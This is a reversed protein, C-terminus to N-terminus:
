GEIMRTFEDEDIVRVDLQEAKARKAPGMDAGALLYSTKSSISGSVKGGNREIAEKIGDRSFNRFVGSVVFSLGKLRDGVQVVESPDSGFRLGQERLRELITRNGEVAFFDVISEAIVPGVEEITTLEDKNMAALREMSQVARALKKAVTEGVHRIGIAFLVREFPISRSGAIGDVVLRASKEGWGKGLALLDEKTVKYLDAINAILGEKFLEEVTEGGLGEIDMAKRSVFHEIRRIIQPPCQHENPCYHQAEGELRVLPTGCEPCTTPFIVPLANVPRAELLVGVIKPIIEGGKEVRVRDGIHLGLKSIQDANHLSARKVTTGALLVPALEAVPTIAGTRGVQYSVQRLETTAQEAAFKYAIAWRPSKATMGLEAQVDLDDVKIVVGDIAVELAHRQSDWHDIFAMIGDLDSAQAIFRRAPDPTRFGWAKARLINAYHSREPLRDGQIGYIFNELGRRAVEKPDQLKLTGAATNRPNAYLEEGADERQRNLRDFQKRTFVVEGRVEFLAPHDAGRLILPISRITRVNATVEEGKEGDGRTVGRILRGDQYTLSIAVGDYKLEMVFTVTGIERQVREVFEAVEERSYSNGLSLMPYRHAVTPFNRTIDGGVRQTPSNDDVLDPFARELAELEKLLADFAQDSIIPQALVYYRHNHEHLEVTLEAIRAAAESREM